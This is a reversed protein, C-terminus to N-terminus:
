TKGRKLRDKGSPCNEGSRATHSPCNRKKKKKKKRFIADYNRGYEELNVKRYTDGKGAGHQGESM